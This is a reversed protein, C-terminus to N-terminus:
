KRNPNKEWGESMEKTYVRKGDRVANSRPRTDWKKADGEKIVEHVDELSIDHLAAFRRLERDQTGQLMNELSKRPRTGQPLILPVETTTKAVTRYDAYIRRRTEEDKRIVRYEEPIAPKITDEVETKAIPTTERNMIVMVLGFMAILMMLGGVIGAIMAANGMSQQEAEKGAASPTETPAPQAPKAASPNNVNWVTACQPCKVNTMAAPVNVAISCGPCNLRRISM